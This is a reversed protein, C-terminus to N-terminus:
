ASSPPLRSSPPYQRHSRRDNQVPSPNSAVYRTRTSRQPSSQPREIPVTPAGHTQWGVRFPRSRDPLRRSDRRRLLRDSFLVGLPYVLCDFIGVGVLEFIRCLLGLGRAVFIYNINYGGSDFAPSPVQSCGSFGSPQDLLIRHPPGFPTKSRKAQGWLILMLRLAEIKQAGGVPSIEYTSAFPVLTVPAAQRKSRVLDFVCPPM